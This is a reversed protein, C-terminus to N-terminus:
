FSSFSLRLWFFLRLLEGFFFFDISVPTPLNLPQYIVPTPLQPPQYTSSNTSQPPPLNFPNAPQQLHPQHLRLSYDNSLLQWRQLYYQFFNDRSYRSDLTCFPQSNDQKVQNALNASNVLNLTTNGQQRLFFLRFCSFGLYSNLSMLWFFLRFLEPPSINGGRKKQLLKSIINLNKFIHSLYDISVTVIESM